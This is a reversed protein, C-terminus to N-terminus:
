VIKKQMHKPKSLSKWDIKIKRSSGKEELFEREVYQVIYYICTTIPHSKMYLLAKGYNETDVKEWNVSVLSVIIKNYLFSEWIAFGLVYM